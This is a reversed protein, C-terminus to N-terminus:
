SPEIADRSAIRVVHAAVDVEDIVGDVLPIEIPEAGERDVVLVDVTPYSHLARVRGVVGAPDVVEAGEIDCVYFEGDEPEPFASRPVLIRANRLKEAQDRDKAISLRVLIADGARRASEVRADVRKKEDTEVVVSPVALLLESDANYVKLRLEGQVGHPRAVEALAVLRAEAASM